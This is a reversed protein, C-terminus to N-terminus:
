YCWSINKLKGVKCIKNPTYYGEDNLIAEEWCCNLKNGVQEYLIKSVSENFYSTCEYEEKIGCITDPQLNSCSTLLLLCLIIWKM